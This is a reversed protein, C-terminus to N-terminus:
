WSYSLGGYQAIELGNNGTSAADCPWAHQVGDDWCVQCIWSRPSGLGDWHPQHFKAPLAKRQEYTLELLNPPTFVVTM